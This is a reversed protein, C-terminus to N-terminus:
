FHFGLYLVGDAFEILSSGTGPTLNSDVFFTGAGGVPARLGRYVKTSAPDNDMVYALECLGGTARLAGMRAEYHDDVLDLDRDAGLLAGAEKQAYPSIAGGVTRVFRLRQRGGADRDCVLMINASQGELFEHTYMSRLDQGVQSLVFQATEMAKRRTEGTHWTSLGTRLMGITAAGIFVFISMAVM